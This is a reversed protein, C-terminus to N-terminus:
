PVNPQSTLKPQWKVYSLLDLMEPDIGQHVGVFESLLYSGDPMMALMLRGKEPVNLVRVCVVLDAEELYLVPVAVYNNAEDFPSYALNLHQDGMASLIIRLEQWFVWKNKSAGSSLTAMLQKEVLPLQALQTGELYMVNKLTWLLQQVMSAPNQQNVFYRDICVDYQGFLHNLTWTTAPYLRTDWDFLLEHILKGVHSDAVVDDM